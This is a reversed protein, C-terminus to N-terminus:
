IEKVPIITLSGNGYGDVSYSLKKINPFFKFVSNVIAKHLGEFLPSFPQAVYNKYINPEIQIRLEEGDYQPSFKDKENFM